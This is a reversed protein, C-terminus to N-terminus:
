EQLNNQFVQLNASLIASSQSIVNWNVEIGTTLFKSLGSSSPIIWGFVVTISHNRILVPTIVLGISALLIFLFCPDKNFKPYSHHNCAILAFPVLAMTQLRTLIFVGILGGVLVESGSSRKEKTKFWRILTLALVAALLAAPLYSLLLKTNSTNAISAAQISSVERLIAFLAIAIGGLRSHLERGILYLVPPFLAM